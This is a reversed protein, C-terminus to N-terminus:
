NEPRPAFECGELECEWAKEHGNRCLTSFTDPRFPEGSHAIAEVAWDPLQDSSSAFLGLAQEFTLKIAKATGDLYGEASHRLRFKGGYEDVYALDGEVNGVRYFRQGTEGTLSESTDRVPYRLIGKVNRYLRGDVARHLGLTEFFPEGKSVYNIAAEKSFLERWFLLELLRRLSLKGWRGGIGHEYRVAVDLRREFMEGGSPYWSSLTLERERPLEHTGTLFERLDHPYVVSVVKKGGREQVVLLPLQNRELHDSFAVVRLGPLTEVCVPVEPRVIDTRLVSVPRIDPRDPIWGAGSMGSQSVYYQRGGFRAHFSNAELGGKNYMEVQCSALDLIAAANGSGFSLQM